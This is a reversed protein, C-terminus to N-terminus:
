RKKPSKADSNDPERIRKERKTKEKAPLNKCSTETSMNWEDSTGDRILGIPTIVRVKYGRARFLRMLFRKECPELLEPINVNYIFDHMQSYMTNVLASTCLKPHSVFNWASLVGPCSCIHDLADTGNLLEVKCKANKTNCVYYNHDHVYNLLSSELLVKCTAMARSYEGVNGVFMTICEFCIYHYFAM